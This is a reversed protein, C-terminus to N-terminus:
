QEAVGLDPASGRFDIGELVKGQDITKVGKVRTLEHMQIRADPVVRSHPMSGAKLYGALGYTKSGAEVDVTGGQTSFLNYDFLAAAAPNELVFAVESVGLVLNNAVTVERTRAPGGFVLIGHAFGQITNNAVRVKNGAEVDIAFGAPLASELFNREISVDTVARFSSGDPDASGIQIAVACDRVYNEKVVARRVEELVIGRTEERGATDSITNGTIRLGDAAAVAIATVGVGRLTNARMELDSAPRGGALPAAVRIAGGPNGQVRNNALLVHAVGAEIAIGAADPGRARLRPKSIRSNGVTVRSAGGGIRIAPQSGDAIHLDDLVLDHAGAGEISVGPDASEGLELSLGAIHWHARRLTFAAAGVAPTVKAKEDFLVQISHRATGDRCPTEIRVPGAYEGARVRLRDGPELACLSSPLDNWPRAESGDGNDKGAAVFFTRRPAPLEAAFPIVHPFSKGNLLVAQSGPLSVPTARPAPM